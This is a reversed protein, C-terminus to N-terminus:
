EVLCSQVTASSSGGTAPHHSTSIVKVGAPDPCRRCPPPRLADRGGGMSLLLLIVFLLLLLVSDVVQTTRHRRSFADRRGPVAVAVVVGNSLAAAIASDIWADRWLLSVVDVVDDLLLLQVFRLFEICSYM